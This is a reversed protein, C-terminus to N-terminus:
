AGPAWRRFPDWLFRHRSDWALSRGLEWTPDVAHLRQRAPVKRELSVCHEPSETLNLASLTSSRTRLTSGPIHMLLRAMNAPYPRCPTETDEATLRRSGRCGAHRPSTRESRQHCSWPMGPKCMALVSALTTAQAARDYLCILDM